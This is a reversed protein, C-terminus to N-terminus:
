LSSFLSDSSTSLIMTWYNQVFFNRVNKKRSKNKLVVTYTHVNSCLNQVMGTQVKIPRARLLLLLLLM